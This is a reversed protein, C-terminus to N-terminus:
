NAEMDQNNYITSSHVNPHMYIKLNTNKNRRSVYGPTSNSYAKPWGLVKLDEMHLLYTIIIVVRM